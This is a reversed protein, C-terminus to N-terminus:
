RPCSVGETCLVCGDIEKWPGDPILIPAAPLDFSSDATSVPQQQQTAAANVTLGAGRRRIGPQQAQLGGAHEKRRDMTRTRTRTRVRQLTHTPHTHTFTTCGM